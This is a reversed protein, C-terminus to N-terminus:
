KGRRDKSISALPASPAFAWACWFIATQQIALIYRTEQCPLGCLFIIALLAIPLLALLCVKPEGRSFLAYCALLLAFLWGGSRYQLTRVLPLDYGAQVVPNLLALLASERMMMHPYFVKVSPNTDAVPVIAREADGDPRAIEWVMANIKMLARLYAVPKRAFFRANAQLFEPGFRRSSVQTIADGFVGWPRSLTDAFYPDSQYGESWQELTGFQELLAKTEEDDGIGEAAYAGMLHIPYTYLNYEENSAAGTAKMLTAHVGGYLGLTLALVLPVVLRRARKDASQAKFRVACIALLTVGVPVIMGHRFCAACLGYLLMRAYLSRGREGRLWSWVTLSFGFLCMSFLVDKLLSGLFVYSALGLGTSLVTYRLCARSGGERELLRLAYGQLDVWVLTQLVIVAFPNEFPLSLLKVLAAFAIPHADSWPQDGIAQKWASLGDYHLLGPYCAACFCLSLLAMWLLCRRRLRADSTREMPPAHRAWCCFALLTYWLSLGFTPLLAWRAAYLRAHLLKGAAADRTTMTLAPSLLGCKLLEPLSLLALFALSLAAAAAHTRGDCRRLLAKPRYAPLACLAAAAAVWPLTWYYADNLYYAPTTLLLALLAGLLCTLMM